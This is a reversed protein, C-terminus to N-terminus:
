AMLGAMGRAQAIALSEELAPVASAYDGRYGALLGLNNLLIATLSEDGLERALLLGQECRSQAAAYDGQDILIIALNNLAATILRQEALELALELGQETLARATAYDGEAYALLGAGRLARARADPPADEAQALVQQFWRRGEGLHGHLYWLRYLAAALRVGIAGEPHDISWQLAARCNGHERELRDLWAGERPSGVLQPEAEEALAMYYGAHRRRMAELEDLKELRERAHERITELMYFRTEEYSDQTRPYGRLPHSDQTVQGRSQVRSEPSPVSSQLLSKDLLSRAVGLEGGTVAELAELTCGGTFVSLRAFLTQESPSLLDYSWDIADRLTQHRPPLDRAGGTLLRSRLSLRPNGEPALRALMSAPSLLKVQAAALEIALPLGDLRACIAAVQAANDETLRFDPKVARAREVFLAVSPYDLLKDPSLSRTLDPLPLTPVAFQQEGRVGLAERSTVLAKLRPCAELLSVVDPAAHAVQEFNDLVLLM